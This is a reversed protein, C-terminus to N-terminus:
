VTPRKDFSSPGPPACDIIDIRSVKAAAPGQRALAIFREVRDAPGEVLAEVCGNARNRVWGTLELMTATQVAWKRYFVGQVRGHITLRRAVATM